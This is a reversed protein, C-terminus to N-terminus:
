FSKRYDPCPFVTRQGPQKRNHPFQFIGAFYDFLRKFFLPSHPIIVGFHLQAACVQRQRQCSFCKTTVMDPSFLHRSRLWKSEQLYPIIHASLSYSGCASYSTLALWVWVSLSTKDLKTFTTYYNWVAAISRADATRKPYKMLNDTLSFSLLWYPAIWFFKM